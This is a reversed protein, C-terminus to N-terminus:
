VRSAPPMESSVEYGYWPASEAHSGECTLGTAVMSPVDAHDSSEFGEYRKSCNDSQLSECLVMTRCVTRTMFM